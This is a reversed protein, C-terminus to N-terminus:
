ATVDGNERRKKEEYPQLYREELERRARDLAWAVEGFRAFNYDKGLYELAIKYMVYCLEGADRPKRKIMINIESRKEPKIYPM